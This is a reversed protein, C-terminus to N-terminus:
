SDGTRLTNMFALHADLRVQLKRRAEKALVYPSNPAWADPHQSTRKVEDNAKRLDAELWGQKACYEQNHHAERWEILHVLSDARVMHSVATILM